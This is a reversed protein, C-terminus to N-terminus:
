RAALWRINDAVGKYVVVTSASLGMRHKAIDYKAGVSMYQGKGTAAHKGHEAALSSYTCRM